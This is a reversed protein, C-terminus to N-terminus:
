TIKFSDIDIGAFWKADEAARSPSLLRFNNLEHRCGPGLGRWEVPQKKSRSIRKIKLIFLPVAEQITIGAAIKVSELLSALCKGWQRRHIKCYTRPQGFPCAICYAWGSARTHSRSLSINFQRERWPTRGDDYTMHVTPCVRERVTGNAMIVMLILHNELKHPM